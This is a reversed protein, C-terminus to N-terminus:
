FVTFVKSVINKRNAIIVFRQSSTHKQTLGFVLESIGYYKNCFVLPEKDPQKFM